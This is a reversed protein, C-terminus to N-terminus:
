KLRDHAARVVCEVYVSLPPRRHSLRKAWTTGLARLEDADFLRAQEIRLGRRAYLPALTARVYDPTPEPLDRVDLPVPDDFIRTNVVARVFAGERGLSALGDLVAAEGLIIGRMLSGWPLNVYLEDAIGHLEAPVQEISAVAYLVNALGGREPKRAARASYERMNERVPDLGIVFRQPHQQAYRYAFAGDGTGVDVTVGDYPAVLGSLAPADIQETRKGRVVIM